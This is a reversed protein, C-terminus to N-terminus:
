EKKSEVLLVLKTKLVGIGFREKVLDRDHNNTVISDWDVMETCFYSCLIISLSSGM